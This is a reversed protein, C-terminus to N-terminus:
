GMCMANGRMPRDDRGAQNVGHGGVQPRGVKMGASLGYGGFGHPSRRANNGSVGALPQRQSQRHTEARGSPPNHNDRVNASVYTRDQYSPQRTMSNPMPLPQRHQSPTQPNQNMDGNAFVTWGQERARSLPSPGGVHEGSGVSMRRQGTREVMRPGAPFSTQQRPRTNQAPMAFGARGPPRITPDSPEQLAQNVSESAANQVQSLLTRKKLKDYLDQTQSYKRSKERYADMLDHNRKQLTEQDVQLSSLRHRLSAIETNADHIVKDMQGSLGNYKDKLAKALYEQYLVEQTTQYSWFSLGRGACEMIIGPSLGSLVSTKSDEAPNLQTSVADDPNPLNTKCAPCIRDGNPASLALTKFCSLCFIHSCTTVIARDHLQARCTLSNCRLPGEM